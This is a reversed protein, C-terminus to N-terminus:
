ICVSIGLQCSLVQKGSRLAGAQLESELQRFTEGAANHQLQYIHAEKFSMLSELGHHPTEEFM